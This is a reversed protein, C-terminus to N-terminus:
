MDLTLMGSTANLCQWLYLAAGIDGLWVGHRGRGYKERAAAVQVITHMAFRRARELWREDGTRSFLSLLAAGNGATGHCLNPGKRLPGAQWTLEGAQLLLADLEPESPA